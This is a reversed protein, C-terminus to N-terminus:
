VFYGAEPDYVSPNADLFGRLMEDRPDDLLSFVLWCFCDFTAVGSDDLFAQVSRAGAWASSDTRRRLDVADARRLYRVIQSAAPHQELYDVIATLLYAFAQRKFRAIKSPDCFDLYAQKKKQFVQERAARDQMRIDAPGLLKARLNELVIPALRQRQRVIKPDFIRLYEELDMMGPPTPGRSGNDLLINEVQSALLQGLVFESGDPRIAALPKFYEVPLAERGVRKKIFWDTVGAIPLRSQGTPNLASTFTPMVMSAGEPTIEIGYNDTISPKVTAFDEDLGAPILLEDTDHHSPFRKGARSEIRAVRARNQETLSVAIDVDDQLFKQALSESGRPVKTLLGYDPTYGRDSMYALIDAITRERCRYDLPDSACYLTFGRNGVEFLDKVLQKVAAFSFHKRVGALAWENCRRCFNSCGITLQFSAVQSLMVKYRDADLSLQTRWQDYEIYAVSRVQRRVIDALVTKLSDRLQWLTRGTQRDLLKKQAVLIQNLAKQDAESFSSHAEMRRSTDLLLREAAELDALMLAATFDIRKMEFFNAM